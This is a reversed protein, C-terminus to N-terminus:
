LYWHQPDLINIGSKKWGPDPHFLNRSGCRLILIKVWFIKEVSEFMHDSVNIESGSRSKKGM